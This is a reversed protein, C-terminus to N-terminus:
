ARCPCRKSWRHTDKRQHLPYFRLILNIFTSKGAGTFGVLGVKEGGKVRVHKNHFLRKEGYHFSVNHFLIEGRTIKLEQADPQDGMDQPDLMVSYAQRVNGLSQFFLPLSHGVVWMIGTINMVTTFVQIAQGTTIQDHLWLYLLSGNIGLFSGLFYFLSTWCSMKEVYQKSTVNTKEEIKQYPILSNKEQKFRYFLNVTFNNIFSDIIKGLLLSRAEGHRQEYLDAPRTLKITVALHVTLWGALILAFIPHVFWLIITGAICSVLAPLIPWFFQQIILETQTTMDTIKNALSGALRENFYHPTHYQVHDFMEMRMDAQLKPLAKGILLGMTRSAAEVFLVLCLGGIIPIKLAEWAAERKAAFQTFIDIVIHLIYPWVLSELPWAVADLCFILLFLWKQRKIFKWLFKILNSYTNM